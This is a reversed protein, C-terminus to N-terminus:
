AFYMRRKPEFRIPELHTSKNGPADEGASNSFRLELVISEDKNIKFAVTSRALLREQKDSIKDSKLEFEDIPEIDENGAVKTESGFNELAKFVVGPQINPFLDTIDFWDSPLPTKKPVVCNFVLNLGSDLGTVGFSSRTRAAFGDEIEIVTTGFMKQLGYRCAGKAVCEKLEPSLKVDSMFTSRIVDTVNPMRSSQGALVILDPDGGFGPDGDRGRDSDQKSLSNAETIINHMVTIAAQLENNVSEDFDQRTITISHATTVISEDDLKVAKIGPRREQDSGTSCLDIKLGEIETWYGLNEKLQELAKPDIGHPNARIEEQLLPIWIDGYYPTGTEEDPAVFKDKLARTVMDAILKNIDQGGFRQLGGMNKLRVRTVADARLVECFSMDITGGGFDFVFLSFDELTDYNLIISLAAASAEDIMHSQEIYRKERLSQLIFRFDNIQRNSFRTPYTLVLKSVRKRICRETAWLVERIYLFVLDRAALDGTIPNDSGIKLKLLRLPDRQTEAEFGILCHDEGLISLSSPIFSHRPDKDLPVPTVENREDLYAACTNSTGFDIALVGAYADPEVLSVHFSAEIRGLTGGLTVSLIVTYLGEELVLGNILLRIDHGSERSMAPSLTMPMRHWIRIVQDTWHFPDDGRSVGLMTVTEVTINRDSMNEFTLGLWDMHGKLVTFETRMFLLPVMFVKFHVPLPPRGRYPIYVTGFLEEGKPVQNPDIRVNLLSEEDNLKATTVWQCNDAITADGVRAPDVNRIELDMTLPLSDRSESGPSVVMSDAPGEIIPAPLVSMSYDVPVAYDEVQCVAALTIKRPMGVGAFPARSYSVTVNVSEEPQIKRAIFPGEISICGKTSKIKTLVIAQKAVCTLRVRFTASEPYDEYIIPLDM